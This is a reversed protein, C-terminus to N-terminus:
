VVAQTKVPDSVPNVVKVEAAAGDNLGTVDLLVFANQDKGFGDAFLKGKYVRKDELFLYDDSFEVMGSQGGGKAAVQMFYRKPLGLVAQGASLGTDCVRVRIGLREFRSHEAGNLDYYIENAYINNYYTVSDVYLTLGQLSRHLGMPNVSMTKFINKFSERRLSTIAVPTKLTGTDTDIDYNYAMGWPQKQGNGSVAARILAYKLGLGIYERVYADQWTPGLELLSKCYPIYCSLKNVFNNVVKFGLSLERTIPDCMEGWAAVPKEAVSVLWETAGTTNVLDIDALPNDDVDERLDDFVSDIITKPMIAQGGQTPSMGIDNRFLNKYFDIEANTLQRIGRSALVKADHEDKLEEFKALINKEIDQYKNVMAQALASNDEADLANTFEDLTKNENLETSKM